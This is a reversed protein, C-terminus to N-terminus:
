KVLGTLWLGVYITLIYGALRHSVFYRGAFGSLEIDDYSKRLQLRPVFRDISYALGLNEHQGQPCNRAVYTGFCVFMVAIIAARWPKYGFGIAGWSPLTLLAPWWHKKSWERRRSTYLIERAEDGRGAQKLVRALQEYPQPSFPRSSGLWTRKWKLTRFLLSTKPDKTAGILSEYTFGNLDVSRPWADERDQLALTRTNRLYLTAKPRWTTAGCSVCGDIRLEGDIVSGTFDVDVLISGSLDVLTSVHAYSVDLQRWTTLSTLLLSTGV